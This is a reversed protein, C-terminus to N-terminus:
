CGWSTDRSLASLIRAVVCRQYIVLLMSFKMIHRGLGVKLVGIWYLSLPVLPEQSVWACTHTLCWNVLIHVNSIWPAMEVLFVSNQELGLAGPFVNPLGLFPLGTVMVVAWKETDSLLFWEQLCLGRSWRKWKGTRPPSEILQAVCLVLICYFLSGKLPFFGLLRVKEWCACPFSGFKM